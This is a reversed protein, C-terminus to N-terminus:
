YNQMVGLNGFPAQPWTLGDIHGYKISGYSEHFGIGASTTLNIIKLFCYSKDGMDLTMKNELFGNLIEGSTNLRSRM